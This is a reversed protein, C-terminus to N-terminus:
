KFIIDENKWKIYDEKKLDKDEIYYFTEGAHKCGNKKFTENAIERLTSKNENIIEIENKSYQSPNYAGFVQFYLSENNKFIKISYIKEYTSKDYQINLLNQSSFEKSNDYGFYSYTKYISDEKISKISINCNEVKYQVAIQRVLKCGSVFIISILFLINKM